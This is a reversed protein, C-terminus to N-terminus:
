PEGKEHTFDRFFIMIGHDAPYSHIRLWQNMPEPYFAEFECAVGEEMSKRYSEVYPSNDYV